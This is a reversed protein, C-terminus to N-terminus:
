QGVAGRVPRLSYRPKQPWTDTTHMCSGVCYPTGAISLILLSMCVPGESCPYCKAGGVRAWLTHGSLAANAGHCAALDEGQLARPLPPTSRSVSSLLSVGRQGM